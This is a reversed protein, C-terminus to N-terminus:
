ITAKSWASALGTHIQKLCEKIADPMAPDEPTQYATEM